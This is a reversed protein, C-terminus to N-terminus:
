EKRGVLIEGYFDTIGIIQLALILANTYDSEFNNFKVTPEGKVDM